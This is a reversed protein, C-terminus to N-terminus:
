DIIICYSPIRKFVKDIIENQLYKLLIIKDLTKLNTLNEVFQGAQALNSMKMSSFISSTDSTTSM